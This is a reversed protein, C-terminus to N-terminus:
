HKFNGCIIRSGGEIKFMKAMRAPMIQQGAGFLSANKCEM